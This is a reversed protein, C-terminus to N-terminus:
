SSFIFPSFSEQYEKRRDGATKYSLAVSAAMHFVCLIELWVTPPFTECCTIGRRPELQVTYHMKFHRGKAKVIGHLYFLFNLLM